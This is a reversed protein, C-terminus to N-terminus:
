NLLRAPSCYTYPQESVRSLQRSETSFHLHGVVNSQWPRASSHPCPQANAICYRRSSSYPYPSCLSSAIRMHTHDLSITIFRHHGCKCLCQVCCLPRM